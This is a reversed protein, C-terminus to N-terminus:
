NDCSYSAVNGILSLIRMFTLFNKYPGNSLKELVADLIGSEKIVRSNEKILNFSTEPSYKQIFTSVLQESEPEEEELANVLKELQSSIPLNSFEDMTRLSLRATFKSFIQNKTVLASQSRVQQKYKQSQSLCGFQLEECDSVFKL